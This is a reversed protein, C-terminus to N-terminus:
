RREHFLLKGYTANLIADGENVYWFCQTGEVPSDFTEVFVRPVERDEGDDQSEIATGTFKFTLVPQFKHVQSGADLDISVVTLPYRLGEHGTVVRPEVESM